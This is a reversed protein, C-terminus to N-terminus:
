GGKFAARVSKHGSPINQDVMEARVRHEPRIAVIQDPANLVLVKLPKRGRV